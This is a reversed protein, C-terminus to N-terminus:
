TINPVFNLLFWGLVKFRLRIKIKWNEKNRSCIKLIQHEQFIGTTAIVKAFDSSDDKFQM